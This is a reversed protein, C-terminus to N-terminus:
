RLDGKISWFFFDERRRKVGLGNVEVGGEKREGGGRTLLVLSDLGNRGGQELELGGGLRM